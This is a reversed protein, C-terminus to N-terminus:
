RMCPTSPLHNLLELPHVIVADAAWAHPDHEEGLYGYGAAIVGMGAARAAQVDRLDDGVYLCAQPPLELIQAAHLLPAPHPKSHATTDGSVICAARYALALRELRPETFRAAKNTVVGWPMKRDELNQLLDAVGDFLRTEHCINEAYLALFRSKHREYDAHEPTIGLGAKLMGRAGSSTLPRTAELSVTPHGLEALLRNLAGALDPATDALTGDLDFLVARIV